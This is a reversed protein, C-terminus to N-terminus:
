CGALGFLFGAIGGLLLAALTYAADEVFELVARVRWFRREYAAAPEGPQPNVFRSYLVLRALHDM